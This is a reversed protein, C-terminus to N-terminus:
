RGKGRAVTEIVGFDGKLVLLLFKRKMQTKLILGLLLLRSLETTYRQAVPQIIPPELGPVPQSNKEERVQGSQSQLGGLRRDLPYCLSKGHAYLSPSFSVM